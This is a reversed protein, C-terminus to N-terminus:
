KINNSFISVRLKTLFQVLIHRTDLGSTFHTMFLGAQEILFQVKISVLSQVGQYPIIRYQFKADGVPLLFYWSKLIGYWHEGELNFVAGEHSMLPMICSIHQMFTCSSRTGFMSMSDFWAQNFYQYHCPLRNQDM